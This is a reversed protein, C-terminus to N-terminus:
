LSSHSDRVVQICVYVYIYVYMYVYIRIDIYMNLVYCACMHRM